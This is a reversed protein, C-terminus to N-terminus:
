KEGYSYALFSINKEFLSRLISKFDFFMTFFTNLAWNLRFDQFLVIYFRAAASFNESKKEDASISGM